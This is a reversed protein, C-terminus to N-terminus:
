AQDDTAQDDTSPGGTFLLRELYRLRQGGDSQGLVRLRVWSGRVFKTRDQIVVAPVAMQAGGPKPNDHDFASASDTKQNPAPPKSTPLHGRDEKKADPGARSHKRFM